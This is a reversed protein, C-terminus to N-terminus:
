RPERSWPCYHVFEPLRGDRDLLNTHHHNSVACTALIVINFRLAALILCYLYNNNTQEDPRLLFMRNVYRRTLTYFHGPLVQRPIGMRQKEAVKFFEGCFISISKPGAPKSDAVTWIASMYQRHM